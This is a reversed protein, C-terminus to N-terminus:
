NTNINYYVQIQLNMLEREECVRESVTKKIYKWVAARSLNLSRSLQKGSLFEFKHSKLLKVIKELRTEDFSTYM